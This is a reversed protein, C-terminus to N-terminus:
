SYGPVNLESTFMNERVAASASMINSPVYERDKYEFVPISIRGFDRCGSGGAGPQQRGPDEVFLVEIKWAQQLM